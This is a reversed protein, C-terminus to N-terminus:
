KGKKLKNLASVDTIDQKRGSAQKNKILDNLGIYNIPLGDIDIILMNVYAESFDVGDIENLIDIRLPPYGIQTIGGKQLFDIKKLGLSAMGFDNLVGVMKQANDDSLDIWIDLDGTHRPKGHFALAYGGVVMYTVEHHNLLAVFDEFNKDLTM